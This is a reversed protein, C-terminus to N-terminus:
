YRKGIYEQERVLTKYQKLLNLIKRQLQYTVHAIEQFENKMDQAEQYPGDEEDSDRMFGDLSQFLSNLVDYIAKIEKSIRKEQMSDEQKVIDEWSMKKVENM